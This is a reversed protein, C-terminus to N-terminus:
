PQNATQRLSGEVNVCHAHRVVRPGYTGIAEHRRDLLGDRRPQNKVAPDPGPSWRSALRKRRAMPREYGQWRGGAHRRSFFKLTSPKTRQRVSSTMHIRQPRKPALGAQLRCRAATRGRVRSREHRVIRVDALQQTVGRGVLVAEAAEGFCRIVALSSRGSFGAGRHAIQPLGIWGPPPRSRRPRALTCTSHASRSSL